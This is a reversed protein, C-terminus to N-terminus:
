IVVVRKRLVRSLAYAGAVAAVVNLAIGIVINGAGPLPTLSLAWSIVPSGVALFVTAALLLRHKIVWVAVDKVTSVSPTASMGSVANISGSLAIAGPASEDDTM